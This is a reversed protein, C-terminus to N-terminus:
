DTKEETNEDAKQTTPTKGETEIEVPKEGEKKQTHKRAGEIIKVAVKEGIGQLTSLNEPTFTSIKEIDTLGSAVLVEATKPGIGDVELLTKILMEKNKEGEKKTESEGKIEIDYGTVRSALKVNQWDKGIAIPLQDDAVKVLAKKNEKDTITVSLVKAPSLANIIMQQPDNTYHILDIKEGSLEATISRIRIGRMGVCAGIPDVKVDNSKVVVKARYGPEREIAMIEILRESVEPVEVEFLKLLFEPAGRSIIIYPGKQSKDMRVMAPRYKQYTDDGTIDKHTLVKLIIGKVRSNQSYREKRIQECYPLIGETKGIDIIIDKDSFRRVSGTVVEGERPKYEKYIHERETDRIKQILVQKAIQAAIRSFPKIDVEIDIVDDTKAKSKYKKADQLLIETEPNVVIEVVKMHQVAKVTGTNRDMQASIQASKGVHKRLASVLAEEITQFINEKPINRQREILELATILEKSDEMNKGETNM